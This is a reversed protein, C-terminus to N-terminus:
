SPGLSPDSNEIVREHGDDCEDVDDDDDDNSGDNSDPPRLTSAALICRYRAPQKTHYNLGIADHELSRGVGRSQVESSRTHPGAASCACSARNCGLFRASYLQGAVRTEIM